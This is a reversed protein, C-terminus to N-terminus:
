RCKRVFLLSGAKGPVSGKVCVVRADPEVTIVELNKMAVQDGGMRGPLAKGKIVKGCATLFSIGGPARGFTSGHSKPGGAYGHRKVVGQFGHGKSIGFVDVVDGKQLVLAEDAPQGVAIQPTDEGKATEPAYSVERLASFYEKPKKLWDQSFQEDSYKKKVRGLQVANYGDTDTTKIQTVYWDSVDIVTVPVVQNEESFVQTMGIKKGWLGNVM